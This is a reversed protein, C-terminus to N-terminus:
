AVYPLIRDSFLFLCLCFVDLLPAEPVGGHCPPHLTDSCIATSAGCPFCRIRRDLLSGKQLRRGESSGLDEIEGGPFPSPLALTCNFDEPVTFLDRAAPTSPSCAQGGGLGEGSAPAVRGQGLGPCRHSGPGPGVMVMRAPLEGVSSWVSQVSWLLPRM